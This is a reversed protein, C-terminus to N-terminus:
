HVSAVFVQVIPVDLAGAEDIPAWGVDVWGFAM